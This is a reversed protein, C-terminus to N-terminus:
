SIKRLSNTLRINPTGILTATDPHTRAVPITLYFTGRVEDTIGRAPFTMGGTGVSDTKRMLTVTSSGGPSGAGLVRTSDPMRNWILDPM